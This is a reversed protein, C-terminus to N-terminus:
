RALQLFPSVPFWGTSSSAGSIQGTGALLAPIPAATGPDALLTGLGLLSLCRTDELSESGGALHHLVERPSSPFFVGIRTPIAAWVSICHGRAACAKTKGPELLLLSGAPTGATVLARLHAWARQGRLACGVAPCGRGRSCVAKTCPVSSPCCRHSTGPVRQPQGRAVCYKRGREVSIM